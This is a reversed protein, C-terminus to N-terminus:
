AVLACRGGARQASLPLWGQTCPNFNGLSMLYPSYQLLSNLCVPLEAFAPVVPHHRLAHLSKLLKKKSLPTVPEAEECDQGEPFLLYLAVSLARASSAWHRALLPQSDGQMLM